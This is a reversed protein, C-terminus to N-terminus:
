TRRGPRLRLSMLAALLTVAALCRFGLPYGGLDLIRGMLVGALAGALYGVADVISSATAALEAGGCEVAFVGALLSYPGYVLLGVLGLLAAGRAPDAEVLPHLVLLLGCLLLLIGAILWRRLPPPMRDYIVGMFLISVGGALDFPTSRLAAAALAGSGQGRHAVSALFDVSWNGFAERLLTLTFSLLCVILFQPRRLLSLLLRVFPPSPASAAAPGPRSAALLPGPRVVAACILLIGVLVLSPVALVARWGGGRTMVERALLTAATGGAVYSLSLVAVATAQQRERFWTPVLKMMAPWGVAGFFRNLSYVVTLLVLGPVLVGAASFAAVGCLSLLFGRRGGIRDTLPGALKGAMYSLNSISIIWGIQEKSAHFATQLLPVAVPLNKRCLYVGVYGLCLAAVVRAGGRSAVPDPRPIPLSEALAEM